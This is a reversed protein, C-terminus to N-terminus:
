MRFLLEHLGVSPCVSMPHPHQPKVVWGLGQCERPLRDRHRAIYHVALLSMSTAVLMGMVAAGTM